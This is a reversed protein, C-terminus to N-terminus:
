PFFLVGGGVRFMWRGFWGICWHTYIISWRTWTKYLLSHQLSFQIGRLYDWVTKKRNDNGVNPDLCSPQKKLHLWTKCLSGMCFWAGWIQSSIKLPGGSNNTTLQWYYILCIYVRSPDPASGSARNTSQMGLLDLVRSIM